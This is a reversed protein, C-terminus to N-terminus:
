RRRVDEVGSVQDRRDVIAVDNNGPGGNVPESTGDRARIRDNAAGGSLNDRASGGDLRDKGGEGRVADAGGEGHLDDDGAGGAIVDGGTGGFVEDDGGRGNIRDGGGRGCIVDDGSTGNLTNARSNGVITCEHFFLLDVGVAATATESEGPDEPDVTAGYDVQLRYGGAPLVDTVVFGSDRPGPACDGGRRAEFTRSFPGSLEVTIETCDNSDSNQPNLAGSFLIPTPGSTSFDADFSGSSDAVPVGPAANNNKRAKNLLRGSVSIGNLPGTPFDQSSPTIMTAALSVFTDAKGEQGQLVAPHLVQSVGFFDDRSKFRSREDIANLAQFTDIDASNEEIVVNPGAPPPPGGGGFAPVALVCLGLAAVALAVVARRGGM